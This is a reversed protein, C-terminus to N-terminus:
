DLHLKQRLVGQSCSEDTPFTGTQRCLGPRGFSRLCLHWGKQSYDFTAANTGFAWFYRLFDATLSVTFGSWCVGPNESWNLKALKQLNFSSLQHSPTWDPINNQNRDPTKATNTCLQQHILTGNLQSLQLQGGRVSFYLQSATLELYLDANPVLADKRESATQYSAARCNVAKINEESGLHFSKIGAFKKSATQFMASIKNVNGPMQEFGNKM